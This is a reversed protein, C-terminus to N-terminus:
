TEFIGPLKDQHLYPEFLFSGPMFETMALGEFEQISKSKWSIFTEIEGLFDFKEFVFLNTRTVFLSM